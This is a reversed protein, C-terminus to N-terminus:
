ASAHSVTRARGLLSAVSDTGGVLPPVMLITGPYYKFKFRSAPEDIARKFYICGDKQRRRTRSIFSFKGKGTFQTGKDQAAQVTFVVDAVSFEQGDHWKVGDRLTFRIGM